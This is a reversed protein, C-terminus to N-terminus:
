SGDAVERLESAAADLDRAFEALDPMLDWDGTLGLHIKDLYSMAAVALGQNEFLPLHAHFDTLRAGLLYLPFEPGRINSVIMNYPNLISVIAVLGSPLLTSGSADALRMFLDIGRAANLAKLRRTQARIREFRRKPDRQAIPLSLFWSSVKNQVGLDAEGDRIDVPVTIRFDLGKLSVRRRRLLRRVAGSVITLVVDNISGDLRKRIDRVEALDLDKWDIRRQGGIPQNIPTKAPRTLGGSLTEWAAGAGEAVNDIAARPSAVADILTRAVSVSFEASRSVGDGLFDLIGPPPQPKWKPARAITTEATPSLLSTLVGVGSVGDVLSHHVKAVAAFRDGALGEVFWIEWLPRDRELPQSAIRGTIEKLEEDGGPRPLATHRVHYALDFRPDDVWICHRQLFTYALKKRYHPLLHLRSGIHARVRQMDLGGQSALLPGLEFVAIATVHIHSGLGEFIVFSSDQASLREFGKGVM